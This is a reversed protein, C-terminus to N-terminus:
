DILAPPSSWETQDGPSTDACHTRIFVVNGKSTHLNHTIKFMNNLSVNWSVGKLQRVHKHLGEM